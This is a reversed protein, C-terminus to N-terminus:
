WDRGVLCVYLTFQGSYPQNLVEMNQGTLRTLHSTYLVLILMFLIHETSRYEICFIKYMFGPGPCSNTSYRRSSNVAPSAHLLDEHETLFLM